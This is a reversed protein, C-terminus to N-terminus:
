KRIFSWAVRQRALRRTGTHPLMLRCHGPTPPPSNSAQGALGRLALAAAPMPLGATTLRLSSSKRTAAVAQAEPRSNQGDSDQVRPVPPASRARHKNIKLFYYETVIFDKALIGLFSAIAILQRQVPFRRWVLPLPFSLSSSSSSVSRGVPPM